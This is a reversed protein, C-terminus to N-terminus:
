LRLQVEKEQYTKEAKPLDKRLISKLPQEPKKHRVTDEEQDFDLDDIKIVSNHAKEVKQTQSKSAYSDIRRIDSM